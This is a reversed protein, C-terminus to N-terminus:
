RPVAGVRGCMTGHFDLRSGTGFQIFVSRMTREVLCGSGMRRRNSASYFLLLFAAPVATPDFTCAESRTAQEGSDRCRGISRAGHETSEIASPRSSFPRRHKTKNKLGTRSSLFFRASPLLPREIGSLRDADSCRNTM